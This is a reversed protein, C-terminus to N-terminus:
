ILRGGIIRRGGHAGPARVPEFTLVSITVLKSKLRRPLALIVAELTPLISASVILHSTMYRTRLATAAAMTGRYQHPHVLVRGGDWEEPQMDLGERAMTGRVGELESGEQLAVRFAEPARSFKLLYVPESAGANELEVLEESDIRSSDVVTAQALKNAWAQIHVRTHAM